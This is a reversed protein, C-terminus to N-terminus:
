PDTEQHRRESVTAKDKNDVLICPEMPAGSPDRFALIFDGNRPLKESVVIGAWTRAEEEFSIEELKGRRAAKSMEGELQKTGSAFSRSKEYVIKSEALSTTGTPNLRACNM